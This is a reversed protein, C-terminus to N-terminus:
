LSLNERCNGMYNFGTVWAPTHAMSHVNAFLELMSERCESSVLQVLALKECSQLMSAGFLDLSLSLFLSVHLSFTLPHFLNFPTHSVCYPHCVSLSVVTFQVVWRRLLPPTQGQTEMAVPFAKSPWLVSQNYLLLTFVSSFHHLVM